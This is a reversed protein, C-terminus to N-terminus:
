NKFAKMTTIRKNIQGLKKIVHQMETKIKTHRVKLPKLLLLTNFVSCLYLKSQNVLSKRHLVGCKARQKCGGKPSSCSLTFLLPVSRLPPPPHTTGGRLLHSSQPQSTIVATTGTLPWMLGYFLRQLVVNVCVHVWACPSFSTHNM